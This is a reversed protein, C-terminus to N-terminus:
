GFRARGRARSVAEITEAQGTTFVRGAIGADLPLTAFIQWSGTAAVRRLRDHLPLLVSVQAPAYRGLATVTLQCAELATSALPLRASVASIVREHEPPM